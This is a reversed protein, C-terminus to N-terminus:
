ALPRRCATGAFSTLSKLATISEGRAATRYGSRHHNFLPSANHFTYRNIQGFGNVLNGLTDTGALHHLTLSQVPLREPSIYLLLSLRDLPHHFGTARSVIPPTYGLRLTMPHLQDVRTVNARVPTTVFGVAVITVGHQFRRAARINMWHRHFAMLLLLNLLQMPQAFGPLFATGLADVQQASNQALRPDFRGRRGGRKQTGSMIQNIARLQRGQAMLQMDNQRFDIEVFLAHNLTFLLEFAPM